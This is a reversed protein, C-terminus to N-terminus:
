TCDLSCHFGERRGRLLEQISKPEASDAFTYIANSLGKSKFTRFIEPNTLGTSYMVEDFIYEGNWQYVDVMTTPDNTYGFDMGRGVLKADKPITDIQKWETFIVGELNGIM